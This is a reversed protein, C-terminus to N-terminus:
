TLDPTLNVDCDFKGQTGGEGRKSVRTVRATIFSHVRMLVVLKSVPTASSSSAAAGNSSSSSSSSAAAAAASSSSAGTGDDKKEDDDEAASAESREEYRCM